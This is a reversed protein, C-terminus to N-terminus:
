TMTEDGRKLWMTGKVEAKKLIQIRAYNKGGRMNDIVGSAIFSVNNINTGYEACSLVFFIYKNNHQSYYYIYHTSYRVNEYLFIGM